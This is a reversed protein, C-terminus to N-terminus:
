DSPAPSERLPEHKVKSKLVSAAEQRRRATQARCAPADAVYKGPAFDPIIRDVGYRGKFHLLEFYQIEAM